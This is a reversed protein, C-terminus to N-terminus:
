RRYLGVHAYEVGYVHAVRAEHSRARAADRGDVYQGARAVKEATLSDVYLESAARRYFVERNAVRGSVERASDLHRVARVRKPRVRRPREGTCARALSREHALLEYARLLISLLNSARASVLRLHGRAVERQLRQDFREVALADYVEVRVAVVVYECGYTERLLEAEPEHQM